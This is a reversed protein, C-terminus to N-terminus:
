PAGNTENVVIHATDFTALERLNIAITASGGPAPATGIKVSPTDLVGSVAFARAGIRAAVADLGTARRVGLGTIASKVQAAGDSPYTAPDKIVDITVYIPVETPRSFNIPQDRGEADVAFGSVAFGGAALTVTRIGVPVNAWLADIIIQDEGGQVLCECSHPPIGDADVVDTNNFFVTANTVGGLQLLAAKIADAPGTGPQSLEAEATLRLSEDSQIDEGLKADALNRASRWGGLPTQIVTLDGAAAVIPGADVSEAFIDVCGTGEGIYRWHATNDVIDDDPTTPGGAGASVGATECRYCRDGNTVRDGVIYPTTPTWPSLAAITADFSTEFVRGTSATAILNGAGVLTGDDGCLTETVKSKTAPRPLTGTLLCIAALLVGNAQDRDMGAYLAEGLDWLSSFAGVNVGILFGLLTKDGLPLSSGFETRVNDEIETRLDDPSPRVFGEPRIGWEGM